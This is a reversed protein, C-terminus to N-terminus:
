MLQNGHISSDKCGPIFGAQDHHILKKIYQQIRDALSKNLIKADINMLSIPRCNENKTHTTDKDPKPLLTITTNHFSNPLKGKQANKQLLKLLIPTLNERFKQCFKSTFGDPGPRQKISSKQNCNQNRISRNMNEIEEQNLKPCNYMELFKDMEKLNDM